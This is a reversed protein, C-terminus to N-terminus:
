YPSKNGRASDQNIFIAAEDTTGIVCRWGGCTKHIGCPVNITLGASPVFKKCTLEKNISQEPPPVHAVQTDAIEAKPSETRVDITKLHVTDSQSNNDIAVVPILATAGTVASAKVPVAKQVEAAKVTAVEARVVEVKQDERQAAVLKRAREEAKLRAARRRKAEREKAETIQAHRAAAKRAAIDNKRKHSFNRTHHSSSSKYHAGNSHANFVGLPGGFNLRVGGGAHVPSISSTIALVAFAGGIIGTSFKNM